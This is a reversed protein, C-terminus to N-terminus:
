RSASASVVASARRRRLLRPILMPTDRRYADYAPGHEHALDGAKTGAEHERLIGIIWEETFRKRKM